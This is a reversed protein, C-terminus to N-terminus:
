LRGSELFARACVGVRGDSESILERIEPGTDRLAASFRGPFSPWVFLASGDDIPTDPLVSVPNGVGTLGFAPGGGLTTVVPPAGM